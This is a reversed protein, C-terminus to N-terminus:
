ERKWVVSHNANVIVSTVHNLRVLSFFRLSFVCSLIGQSARRFREINQRDDASV